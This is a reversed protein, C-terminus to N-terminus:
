QKDSALPQACWDSVRMLMAVCHSLQNREIFEDPQHAQDISGPGCIVTPLGHAQFIGAETGYSVAHTQNCHSLHLALATSSSDPEPRLGRVNSMARTIISTHPFQMQMRQELMQSKSQFEALLVETNEDPLPRIEWAIRCHNPIINRATGGEIVGVHVTSYPPTFASTDYPRAALRGGIQTLSALLESMIHIANIGQAPASSHAAHGTVITEFSLIGKHATVLQMNTPEGVIALSPAYGADMIHRAMPAAGLCGIEEDHSFALWIPKKLPLTQWYPILALACALYSKMDCTGRGFLRNGRKTLTFPPSTWPQGTVPVVDTHGSLVIGGAMEPGIRALLSSKEPSENVRASTVGHTHLYDEVWQILAINSGSSTTDFGVLQALIAEAKAQFSAVNSALNSSAACM